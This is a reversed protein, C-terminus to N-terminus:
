GGFRIHASKDRSQIDNQLSRCEPHELPLDISGSASVFPRACVSASGMELAVLSSFLRSWIIAPVLETMSFM